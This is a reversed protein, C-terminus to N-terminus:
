VQWGQKGLLEAEAAALRPPQDLLPSHPDVAPYDGCVLEVQRHVPEVPRHKLDSLPAVPPQPDPRSAHDPWVTPKSWTGTPPAISTPRVGPPGQFSRGLASLWASEGGHSRHPREPSLGKKQRRPRRPPTDRRGLRVATKSFQAAHVGAPRLHGRPTNLGVREACRASRAISGDHRGGIIHVRRGALCSLEENQDSKV